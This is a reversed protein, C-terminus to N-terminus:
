AIIPLGDSFGHLGTKRSSAEWCYQTADRGIGFRVLEKMANDKKFNRMAM